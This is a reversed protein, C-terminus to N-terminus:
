LIERLLAALFDHFKDSAVRQEHHEVLQRM